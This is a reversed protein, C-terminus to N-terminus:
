IRIMVNIYLVNIYFGVLKTFEDFSKKRMNRSLIYVLPRKYFFSIRKKSTNKNMTGWKIRKLQRPTSGGM